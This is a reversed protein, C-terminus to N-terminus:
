FYESVYWSGPGIILSHQRKIESQSQDVQAAADIEDVRTM